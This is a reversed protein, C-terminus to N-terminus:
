PLSRLVPLFGICDYTAEATDRIFKAIPLANVKLPVIRFAPIAMGVINLCNAERFNRRYLLNPISHGGGLSGCLFDVRQPPLQRLVLLPQSTRWAFSQLPFAHPCQHYEWKRAFCRCETTSPRCFSPARTTPVSSHGLKRNWQCRQVECFFVSRAPRRLKGRTSWPATLANRDIPTSRYMKGAPHGTTSFFGALNRYQRATTFHTM